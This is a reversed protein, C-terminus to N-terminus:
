FLIVILWKKLDRTILMMKEPNHKIDSIDNKSKKNIALNM